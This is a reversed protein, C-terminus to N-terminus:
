TLTTPMKSSAPGNLALSGVTQPVKRDSRIAYVAM